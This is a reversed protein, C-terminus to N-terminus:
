LSGPHTVAKPRVVRGITPSRRWPRSLTQRRRAAGVHRQLGPDANAGRGAGAGAPSPGPMSLAPRPASRHSQRDTERQPALSVATRAPPHSSPLWPSSPQRGWFGVRCLLLHGRGLLRLCRDHCQNSTVSPALSLSTKGSEPRSTDVPIFPNLSILASAPRSAKSKFTLLLGHRALAVDAPEAVNAKV